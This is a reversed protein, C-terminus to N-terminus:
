IILFVFIKTKNKLERVFHALFDLNKGPADYYILFHICFRYYKKDKIDLKFSYFMYILIFYCRNSYLYFSKFDNLPTVLIIM